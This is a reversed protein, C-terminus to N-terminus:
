ECDASSRNRSPIVLSFPAWPVGVGVAAPIVLRNRPQIDCDDRVEDGPDVARARNVVQGQFQDGLVAVAVQREHEVRPLPELGDLGPSAPKLWVESREGRSAAGWRSSKRCPQSDRCDRGLRSEAAQM